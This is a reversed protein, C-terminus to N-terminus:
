ISYFLYKSRLRYYTQQYRLNSPPLIILKLKLNFALFVVKNLLNSYESLTLHNEMNKCELEKFVFFSLRIRKPDLNLVKKFLHLDMGLDSAEPIYDRPHYVTLRSM